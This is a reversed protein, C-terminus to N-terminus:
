PRDSPAPTAPSSPRPRQTPVSQHKNSEVKIATRLRGFLSEETPIGIAIEDKPLMRSVGLLEKRISSLADLSKEFYDDRDKNAPKGVVQRAAFRATDWAAELNGLAKAVDAAASSLNDSSTLASVKHLSLRAERTRRLNDLIQPEYRASHPESVSDEVYVDHLLELADLATAYADVALQRVVQLRDESVRQDALREASRRAARSSIYTFAAGLTTGALALLAPGLDAMPVHQCTSPTIQPLRAAGLRATESKEMGLGVAGLDHRRWATPHSGAAVLTSWQHLAYGCSLPPSARNSRSRGRRLDIGSSTLAGAEQGGM